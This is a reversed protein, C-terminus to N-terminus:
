LRAGNTFTAVGSGAVGLKLELSRLFADFDPNRKRRKEVGRVAALVSTHHRHFVRGIIPLSSGTLRWCLYMACHRPFVFKAFNGGNVMAEVPEECQAAVLQLIRHLKPSSSTTEQALCIATQLVERLFGDPMPNQRGRRAERQWWAEQIREYTELPIPITVNIHTVPAANSAASM